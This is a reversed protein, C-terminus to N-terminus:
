ASEAERSTDLEAMLSELEERVWELDADVNSLLFHRRPNNAVCLGVGLRTRGHKANWLRELAKGDWDVPAHLWGTVDRTGAASGATRRPPEFGELWIEGM